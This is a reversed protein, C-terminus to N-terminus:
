TGGIDPDAPTAPPVTATEAAALAPIQAAATEALAPNQPPVLVPASGAVGTAAADPKAATVPDARKREELSDSVATIIRVIPSFAKGM